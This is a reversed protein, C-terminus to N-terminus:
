RKFGSLVNVVENIGLRENPNFRCMKKVLHYATKSCNVPRQPIIQRQLVHFVVANDPMTIGWPYKGSVGELICM